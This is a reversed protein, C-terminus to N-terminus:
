LFFSHGIWQPLGNSCVLHCVHFMSQAVLRLCVITTDDNDKSFLTLSTLHSFVTFAQSSLQCNRRLERSIIIELPHVSLKTMARMVAIARWYSLHLNLLSDRVLFAVYSVGVLQLKAKWVAAGCPPLQIQREEQRWQSCFCNTKVISMCHGTLIRDSIVECTAINTSSLEITTNWHLQWPLNM